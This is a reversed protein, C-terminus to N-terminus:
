CGALSSVTPKIDRRAITVFTHLLFVESGVALLEWGADRHRQPASPVSRMGISLRGLAIDAAARTAKMWTQALHNESREAYPLWEEVLQTADAFRLDAALAVAEYIANTCAYLQDNSATIGSRAADVSREFDLALLWYSSLGVYALSTARVSGTAKGFGLLGEAGDRARRLDGFVALAQNLGDQSKFHPYPNSRIEEESQKVSEASRIADAIRGSAFLPYARWALAHSLAERANAARALEVALEASELSKGLDGGFFRAVGLWGRYAALVTPDGSRDADVLHKELLRRWEGISGEYYYVQSWANVLEALVHSEHRGRDREAILSYADRFHAMAERLAYRAVCKRGAETLYHIAKDTDGGRLYHYALTEVFEGVRDAFKGEMALATRRHLQRRETKLLGEYAVEQTLSHKFAYELEPAPRRIQILDAEQLGDLRTSLLAPDLTVQAVIDYLFERGVVAAHRLVRRRPEDLRDIRAAIVGTVTAPVGAEGLPRTLEWGAAAQTLFATEVLSNIVEEVYFPNGDSREEIFQTLAAPPQGKLLSALLEATQRPSLDSLKIVEMPPPPTFGPRYNGLLLVSVRLDESLGRLLIETSSDAWHLDQMCVVTPGRSALVTLLQRVTGLLREQFAEREIVIGERQPLNYLHLLLPLVDDPEALIGGIAAEIKGQVAAPSDSEEIGWSRSLLDIIPAYPINQTYPYARGELWQVDESVRARFEAVLRTKGTGADGCIGFVGSAGDRMREAADLLIGLEVQRGVFTSRFQRAVVARLRATCVRAAVISASKGKFDRAGLDELEFANSVLRQTEPGVWIEGSPAAGMLRAALNITDGLPGATSGGFQLEGTVVLGTNIGSHLAILTGTRAQVQPSLEAVAAHLELAARVARVPDDEHAVPLGFIAMIADGIFKEIRGEYRAVIEAANSFVRAMIERTDEPDLRESLATFGTLDSFLVTVQKREFTSHSGANADGL